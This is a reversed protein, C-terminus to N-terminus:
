SGPDQLAAAKRQGQREMRNEGYGRAAFLSSVLACCVARVTWGSAATYRTSWRTVHGCGVFLSLSLRMRLVRHWWGRRIRRRSPTSSEM